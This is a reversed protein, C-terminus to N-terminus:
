KGIQGNFNKLQWSLDKMQQLPPNDKPETPRQMEDDAVSAAIWGPICEACIYEPVGADRYGHYGCAFSNCNKCCGM